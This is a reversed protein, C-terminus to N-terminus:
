PQCEECLNGDDLAAECEMSGCKACPYLESDEGVKACDSCKTNTM